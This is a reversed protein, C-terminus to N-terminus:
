SMFPQHRGPDRRGRGNSQTRIGSSRLQPRTASDSANITEIHVICNVIRSQHTTVQPLSQHKGRLPNTQAHLDEPLLPTASALYGQCEQWRVGRRLAGPMRQWFNHGPRRHHHPTHPPSNYRFWLKAPIDAPGHAVSQTTSHPPLRKLAVGSKGSRPSQIAQCHHSDACKGANSWNVWSRGGAEM